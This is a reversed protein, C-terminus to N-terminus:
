QEPAAIPDLRVAVSHTGDRTWGILRDAWGYKEAMLRHVRDRTAPDRVPIARFSRPPGGRELEVRPEAELRTLWGSQPQGARLWASGADEVVWVRTEVTVGRADRTTLVAVEGGLESAFYIAAGALVAIGLIAALGRWM